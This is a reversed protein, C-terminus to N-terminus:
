SKKSKTADSKDAYYNKLKKAQEIFANTFITEKKLVNNLEILENESYYKELLLKVKEDSLFEDLFGRSSVLHPKEKLINNLLSYSNEKKGLRYESMFFYSDLFNKDKPYKSIEKRIIKQCKKFQESYYYHQVRSIFIDRDSYENKYVLNQLQIFLRYLESLNQAMYSLSPNVPKLEMGGIVSVASRNYDELNYVLLKKRIKELLLIEETTLYNSFSFLHEVNIDIEKVREFLSKGIPRLANSVNKDYLYSENLCKDQLGLDLDDKTLKNGKIVDQFNSPSHNNPRMVLDFIFFINTYVLYMDLDLKPRLKKLRKREPLVSFILWFIIGAVTSVFIQYVFDNLYDVQTQNSIKDLENKLQRNQSQLTDIEQLVKETQCQGIKLIESVTDKPQSQGFVFLSSLCFTFFLTIYKM